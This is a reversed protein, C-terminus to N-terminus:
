RVHECLRLVPKNAEDRRDPRMHATGVPSIETYDSIPANM